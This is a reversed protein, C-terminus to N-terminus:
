IWPLCGVPGEKLSVQQYIVHVRALTGFIRCPFFLVDSTGINVVPVYVTGGTVKLLAPLALLGALFSSTACWFHPFDFLTPGYQGILELLCSLLVNMGLVGPVRSRLGGPPHMMATGEWLAQHGVGYLGCIPHLAWKCGKAAVLFMVEFPRSGMAWFASHFLKGHHNFM